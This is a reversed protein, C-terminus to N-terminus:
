YIHVHDVAISEWDGLAKDADFDWRRIQITGHWGADFDVGGIMCPIADTADDGEPTVEGALGQLENLIRDFTEGAEENFSIQM